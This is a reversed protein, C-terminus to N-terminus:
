EHMELSLQANRLMYCLHSSVVYIYSGRFTRLVESKTEEKCYLVKFLRLALHEDDSLGRCEVKARLELKSDSLRDIKM